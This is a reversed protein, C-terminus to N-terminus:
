TPKEPLEVLGAMWDKPLEEAVVLNGTDHALRPLLEAVTQTGGITVRTAEVASEAKQRELKARVRRVAEAASRSGLVGPEPLWQLAAPGLRLLKEEADRRDSKRDADLRVICRRVASEDVVEEAAAGFPVLMVAAHAVFLLGLIRSLLM